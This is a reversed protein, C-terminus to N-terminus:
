CRWSGVTPRSTTTPRSTPEVLCRDTSRSCRVSGTRTPRTPVSSASRGPDDDDALYIDRLLLGLRGTSEVARHARASAGRGRLARWDPMPLARPHRGGNAHPNAGMRRDGHPALGALGPRVAQRERRLARRAPLQADVGRAHALHAANERVNALPVQHARFTGEVPVGDVLKPGTWGKPTDCCSRRGRNAWSPGARAPRAAPDSPDDGLCDDLVAALAQHVLTPDDGAVFRASTATATSSGAWWSPHPGAWAGDPWQDQLRQPAPDAPGGRRAGPEPLAHGELLGGPTRDRGRRRGRRLGRDSGPQRLRSRVRAGARLGARRGRPDVGAHARERPEPDRRADLVSPVAAAPRDLDRSVDPYVETYTGELYTNAVVAPGGHGPGAVFIVDLDDRRILRNLHAYLLSLGPSTGWHGLLRPKIHEPRLPERLLPNRRSTSRASRSTTRRAGGRIWSRWSTPTWCRSRAMMWPAM